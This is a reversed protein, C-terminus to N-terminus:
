IFGKLTTSITKHKWIEPWIREISYAIRDTGLDKSVYLILNHLEKWWNLDKSTILNRHLLYQAGNAWSTVKKKYPLGIISCLYMTDKSENGFNIVKGDECNFFLNVPTLEPIEPMKLNKNTENFYLDVFHKHTDFVYNEKPTYHTTVWKSLPIYGTTHQQLIKYLDPCHDLPNGQLLVIEDYERIKGKSMLDVIARVFTEAERGYNPVDIKNYNWSWDEGKNYVIVDGELKEIWDLNEKYRAIINIRKM